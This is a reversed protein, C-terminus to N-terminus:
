RTSTASPSLAGNCLMIKHLYNSVSLTQSTELVWWFANEEPMLLLLIGAFFNMAQVHKWILMSLTMLYINM